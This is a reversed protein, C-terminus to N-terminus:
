SYAKRFNNIFDNIQKLFHPFKFAKQDEGFFKSTTVIETVLNEQFKIVNDLSKKASEELDILFFKYIETAKIDEDSKPNAKICIDLEKSVKKLGSEIERIKAEVDGQDLQIAECVSNITKPFNLAAQEKNKLNIILFDLLNM